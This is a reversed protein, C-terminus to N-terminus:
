GEIYAQWAAHEEATTEALRKAADRLWDAPRAKLERVLAAGQGAGAHLNALEAGMAELLTLTAEADDKPADLKRSDPALRRVLLQPAIRAWPDPVHGPGALMEELPVPRAGPFKAYLYASPLRAKAERAVRGGRWLALMVFRPRGRSGLGAARPAIREAVAGEPMAAQLAERWGPPPPAAHLNKMDDWFKARSTETPVVFKRLESHTEDLVFPRPAPLQKAYGHLIAAAIEQTRPADGKRGLRASAALRALDVTWPLLAAEDLDSVGWVLRGEADRWTGFNDTHADGVSPVMTADLLEPALAPLREAFRFCTARQFAFPAAAMLRHRAAIEPEVADCHRRLWDDYAALSAQFAKLVSGPM